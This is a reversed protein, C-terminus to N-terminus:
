LQRQRQSANAVLGEPMLSLYTVSVLISLEGLLHTNPTRKELSISSPAHLKTDLNLFHVARGGDGSEWIDEYSANLCYYLWIFENTASNYFNNVGGGGWFQM